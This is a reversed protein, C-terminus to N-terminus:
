AEQLFTRGLTYQTDNVAPQIPFYRTTNPALPHKAELDFSAYPFSIDVTPGGTKSNGLTFTFNPNTALLNDHLTDNVWYMGAKKDWSLGFAQEFAQCSKM